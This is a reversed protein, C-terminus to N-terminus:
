LSGQGVLPAYRHARVHLVGMSQANYVPGLEQTWFTTIQM